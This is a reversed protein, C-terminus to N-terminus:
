GWGSDGGPRALKDVRSAAVTDLLALTSDNVENFLGSVIPITEGFQDLRARM